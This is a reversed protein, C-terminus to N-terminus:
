QYEMSFRASEGDRFERSVDASNVGGVECEDGVKASQFSPRGGQQGAAFPMSDDFRVLVSEGMALSFCLPAFLFARKMVM